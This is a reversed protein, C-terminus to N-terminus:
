FLKKIMAFQRGSEKFGWANYLHLAPLNKSDVTLTIRQLQLNQTLAVARTIAQHGLGFRRFDPCVGLYEINMEENIKNLLLVAAPKNDILAISWLNADRPCQGRHGDIIHEITRLGHIKPCDLSELYTAKLLEALVSKGFQEVPTWKVSAAYKKIPTIQQSRELRVLTALPMFGANKFAKKTLFDKPNIIVQAIQIKEHAIERLGREILKTLRPVVKQTKAPSAVLTVTSGPNIITLIAITKDTCCNYSSPPKERLFHIFNEAREKGVLLEITELNPINTKAKM